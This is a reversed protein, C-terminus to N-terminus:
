RFTPLQRRSPGIDRIKRIKNNPGHKRITRSGEGLNKRANEETTFCIGPYLEGLRPVALVRGISKRRETYQKHTLIYQVAAM